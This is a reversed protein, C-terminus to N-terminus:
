DSELQEHLAEWKEMTEALEKKKQEYKKYLGESNIKEANKEPESLIEDMHEIESELAEIKAEYQEIQKKTKRLNKEKEKRELHEQKGKGPKKDKQKKGQTGREKLDLHDLTELKMKELYENVDGMFYNIKHNKIEYIKNTLGHLFDRDHSVIILTGDFRLLAHKLIDKSRMDLHNTPEDLVLLNVPELLLKALALRSKEGGSLVKVKKDLDDGSFLFGGLINKVKKRLEGTAEDDITQFVTKEEELLESQNQAYYGIKVNHGLKAEGQHDLDGVIIKSLTSKGEGNKGVFAVFDGREVIFDLGRLVLNDGFSKTVGQGEFVVKGSRPAPPFSFTIHRTDKDDIEVEEMKELMKVRSQVQSAKNAQYRFREIFREMQAVEKQQNEYAAIQQQRIEERQKVYGSYSTSFDYIKKNTIEITRNTVNDLFARDHSVLMVAGQYNKLFQELWQISVIDLHNTPEDLLLLDPRQLLIKALEIRMQWGGSFIKVPQDFDEPNFGLGLLVKETDGEINHGGKLNFRDNLENLKEIQKMYSASEYDQRTSIDTTIAHIQKELKKLEDFAHLAEKFVTTDSEVKLEQPLYGVTDGDPSAITGENPEIQGALIKLLTSKGAGNKGVLGIRDRDDVNFTIGDFIFEGTFHISLNSVSHM